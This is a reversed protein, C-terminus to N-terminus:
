LPIHVIQDQYEGPLFAGWIMVLDDVMAAFSAHPRLTFNGAVHRRAALHDRLHRPMSRRNRTILCYGNEELWLLIEADPTGLPPALDDGVTLLVIDPQRRLLQDGVTHSTNEDILFYIGSM